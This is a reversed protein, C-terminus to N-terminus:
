MKIKEDDTIDTGDLIDDLKSYVHLLTVSFNTPVHKCSYLKDRYKKNFIIISDDTSKNENIVLELDDSIIESIKFMIDDGNKILNLSYLCSTIINFGTIISVINFFLLVGTKYISVSTM